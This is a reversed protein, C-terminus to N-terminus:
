DAAEKDEVADKSDPDYGPHKEECIFKREFIRWELPNYRNYQPLLLNPSWEFNTVEVVFEVQDQNRGYCDFPTWGYREMGNLFEYGYEDITSKQMLSIERMVDYASIEKNKNNSYNLEELVRKISLGLDYLGELVSNFGKHSIFTISGISSSEVYGTYITFVHYKRNTDSMIEKELM